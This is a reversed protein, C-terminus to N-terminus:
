TRTTRPVYHMGHTCCMLDNAHAASPMRFRRDGDIEARDCEVYVYQFNVILAVFMVDKAALIQVIWIRPVTTNRCRRYLLSSSLMHALTLAAHGDVSHKIHCRCRSCRLFRRYRRCLFRM